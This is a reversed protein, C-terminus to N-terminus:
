NNLDNNDIEIKYPSALKPDGYLALSEAYNLCTPTLTHTSSSKGWIVVMSKLAISAPPYLVLKEADKNVIIFSKGELQLTIRRGSKPAPDVLYYHTKVREDTQNWILRDPALNRDQKLLEAVKDRDPVFHGTNELFTMGGKFGGYEEKWEAWNKAFAQVRDARGFATDTAGNVWTFYLNRLNEGQTEGDTPASASANAASFRHPIKPCIVFNGYGGHSAGTIVVKDPDVNGFVSFALILREIVQAISDDYFGNWEDNPARLACYVYPALDPQEKYYNTFMGEWQGDNMEKPGSGGGHLAIVLPMTGDPKPTGVIRYKFPATRDDTHITKTEFDSKLKIHSNSQKFENWAIKRYEDKWKLERLGNNGISRIAFTSDFADHFLAAPSVPKAQNVLISFLCPIM